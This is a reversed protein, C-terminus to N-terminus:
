SWGLTPDTLNDQVEASLQVAEILREKRELPDTFITPSYANDGGAYKGARNLATENTLHKLMQMWIPWNGGMKADRQFASTEINSKAIEEILNLLLRSSLVLCGHEDRDGRHWAGIDIGRFKLDAEIQGPYKRLVGLATAM